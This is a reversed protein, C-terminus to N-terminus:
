QEKHIRICGWDLTQVCGKFQISKRENDHGNNVNCGRLQPSVANVQLSQLWCWGNTRPNNLAWIYFPNLIEYFQESVLCFFFDVGSLSRVCNRTLEAAPEPRRAWTLRQSIENPWPAAMPFALHTIVWRRHQTPRAGCLPSLSIVTVGPALHQM